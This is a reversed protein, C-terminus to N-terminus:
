EKEDDGDNFLDEESVGMNAMMELFDADALADGSASSSLGEESNDADFGFYAKVDGPSVSISCHALVAEEVLIPAGASLAVLIADSARSDIEIDDRLVISAYFEGENHSVIRVDDLGSTAATITELLVDLARPRRPPDDEDYNVFHVAQDNSVWIPLYRNKDAWYLLVCPQGEPEIFHVSRYEVTHFAM